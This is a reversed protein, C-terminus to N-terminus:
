LQGTPFQPRPTGPLLRLLHPPLPSPLFPLLPQVSLLTGLWAAGSDAKIEGSNQGQLTKESSHNDWQQPNM